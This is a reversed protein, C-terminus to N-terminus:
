DFMNQLLKINEFSYINYENGTSIIITRNKKDLSFIIELIPSFNLKDILSNGNFSPYYAISVIDFNDSFNMLDNAIKFDNQNSISDLLYDIKERNTLITQNVRLLSICVSISDKSNIIQKIYKDPLFDKELLPNINKLKFYYGRDVMYLITISFGPTIRYNDNSLNGFWNKPFSYYHNESIHSKSEQQEKTNLSFLLNNHIKPNSNYLMKSTSIRYHIQISDLLKNISNLASDVLIKEINNFDIFKIIQKNELFNFISDNRTIKFFGIKLLDKNTM